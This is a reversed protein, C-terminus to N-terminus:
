WQAAAAGHDLAPTPAPQRENAPLRGAAALARTPANPWVEAWQGQCPGSAPPFQADSRSPARLLESRLRVLRTTPAWPGSCWCPRASCCTFLSRRADVRQLRRPPRLGSVPQRRLGVRPPALPRRRLLHPHTPWWPRCREGLYAETLAWTQARDYWMLPTQDDDARGARYYLAVQLAKLTNDRCDPTASFDTECLM